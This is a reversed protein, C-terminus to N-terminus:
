AVRRIGWRLPCIDNVLAAIVSPDASGDTIRPLAREAIEGAHKIAARMLNGNAEREQALEARLRVNEAHLERLRLTALDSPGSRERLIGRVADVSVARGM